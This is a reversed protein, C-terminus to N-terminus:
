ERGAFAKTFKFSPLFSKAPSTKALIGNSPDLVFSIVPPSGLTASKNSALFGFSAATKASSLPVIAKPFSVLPLTRNTIVNSPAVM